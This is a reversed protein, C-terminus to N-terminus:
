IGPHMDVIEEVVNVKQDELAKTNLNYIYVSSKKDGSYSADFTGIMLKGNGMKFSSINGKESVPLKIFEQFELGLHSARYLVKSTAIYWFNNDQDYVASRIVGDGPIVGEAIKDMSSPIYADSYNVMYSFLKNGDRMLYMMKIKSSISAQRGTVFTQNAFISPKTIDDYSITYDYSVGKMAHDVLRMSKNKEDYFSFFYAGNSYPYVLSKLGAKYDLPDNRLVPLGIAGKQLVYIKGNNVAYVVPNYLDVVAETPAFVFNPDGGVYSQSNYLLQPLFERSDIMIVPYNAHQVAITLNNYYDTSSNGYKRSGGITLPNKGLNINPLLVSEYKGTLKITSQCYLIAENAANKSLVYYGLKYPNTVNILFNYTTQIGTQKDTVIFEGQKRGYGKDAIYEFKNTTRHQDQDVKWEFSLNSQDTGSITGEIKPEIKLTDGFALNYIRETNHDGELVNSISITNVDKYDYNGLDKSCNVLLLVSFILLINFKLNKM